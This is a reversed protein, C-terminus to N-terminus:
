HLNKATMETGKIGLWIQLGCFILNITLVIASGQEPSASVTGSCRRNLSGFLRSGMCPAAALLSPHRKEAASSHHSAHSPRPKSQTHDCVSELATAAGDGTAVAM